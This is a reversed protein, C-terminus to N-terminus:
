TGGLRRHQGGSITAAREQSIWQELSAREYVVRSGIKFSAPGRGQHRWWRLTNEPIGLMASVEATTLYTRTGENV